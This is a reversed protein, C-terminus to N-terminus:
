NNKWFNGIKRCTRGIDLRIGLRDMNVARQMQNGFAHFMMKM